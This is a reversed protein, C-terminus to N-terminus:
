YKPLIRWGIPKRVHVQVEEYWQRKCYEIEEKFKEERSVRTLTTTWADIAPHNTCELAIDSYKNPKAHVRLITIDKTQLLIQLRLERPLSLFNTPPKKAPPGTIYKTYVVYVQQTIVNNIQNFIQLGVERPLTFFKTTPFM